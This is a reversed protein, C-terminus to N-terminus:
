RCFVGYGKTTLVSQCRPVESINGGGISLSMHRVVAVWRLSIGSYATTREVTIALLPLGDSNRNTAGSLLLSVNNVRAGLFSLLRTDKLTPPM